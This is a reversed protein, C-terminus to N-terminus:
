GKLQNLIELKENIQQLWIGNQIIMEDDLDTSTNMFELITERGAEYYRIQEEITKKAM